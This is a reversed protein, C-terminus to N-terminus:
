KAETYLQTIIVAMEKVQIPLAILQRLIGSISSEATITPIFHNRLVDKILVRWIINCLQSLTIWLNCKSKFGHIYASYAAQLQMEAINLGEQISEPRLSFNLTFNKNVCKTSTDWFIKHHVKLYEYFKKLCWLSTRFYFNLNIKMKIWSESICPFPFILLLLLDDRWKSVIVEIYEKRYLVSEIIAGLHRQGCWTIKISSNNFIEAVISAYKQKVILIAKSPKPFYRYKPWCQLPREVLQKIEIIERLYWKLIEKLM